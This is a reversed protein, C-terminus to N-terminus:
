GPCFATIERVPAQAVQVQGRVAPRFPLILKALGGGCAPPVLGPYNLYLDVRNINLILDAFCGQRDEVM